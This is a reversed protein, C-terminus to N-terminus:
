HKLMCAFCQCRCKLDEFVQEAQTSSVDRRSKETLSVVSFVSMMENVSPCVVFHLSLIFQAYKKKRDNVYFVHVYM